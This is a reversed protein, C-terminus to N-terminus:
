SSGDPAGAASDRWFPRNTEAGSRSARSGGRAPYRDLVLRGRDLELIHHDVPPTLAPDHTAVLVTTGRRHIDRFLQFIEQSLEPDLNGTPEDALLIEPRNVIARAVAVRQKEGGSLEDPYSAMRDALGVRGLAKAGLERQRAPGLGLIRPLYTVNELVTKRGILRFDQFVVGITRRLYPIKGRPLSSVNRGNVLIRGESSLEERFILRLLSTKGAGSSGRLLAFEGPRIHFDVGDLALQGSPYRLSVDFFRIM